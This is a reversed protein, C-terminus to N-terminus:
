RAPQPPRRGEESRDADFDAITRSPRARVRVITIVVVGLWDAGSFAPACGDADDAGDAVARFELGALPKPAGRGRVTALSASPGASPLLRSPVGVTRALGNFEAPPVAASPASAFRGEWDAGLFGSAGPQLARSHVRSLGERQRM